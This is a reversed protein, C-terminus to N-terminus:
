RSKVAEIEMKIVVDQSIGSVSETAGSFM